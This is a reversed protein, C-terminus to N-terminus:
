IGSVLFDKGSRHSFFVSFDFVLSFHLVFKGCKGWCCNIERREERQYNRQCSENYNINAYGVFECVCMYKELCFLAIGSFGACERVCYKGGYHDSTYDETGNNKRLFWSRRAPVCDGFVDRERALFIYIWKRWCGAAAIMPPKGTTKSCVFFVKRGM